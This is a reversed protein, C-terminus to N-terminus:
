FVNSWLMQCRKFLNWTWTSHCRLRCTTWNYIFACVRNLVIACLWRDAVTWNLRCSLTSREVFLGFGFFLRLYGYARANKCRRPPKQKQTMNVRSCNLLLFAFYTCTHTHTRAIHADMSRIPMAAAGNSTFTQRCRISINFVAVFFVRLKRHRSLLWKTIPPSCLCVCVGHSDNPEVITDIFLLGFDKGSPM